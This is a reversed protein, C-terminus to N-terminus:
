ATQKLIYYTNTKGNGGDSEYMTEIELGANEVLRRMEEKNCFHCYRYAGFTNSWRLLFDNEELENIDIGIDSIEVSNLRKAFLKLEIFNWVTIVIRGDPNLSKHLKKLFDLRKSYSPIHHFVGFLVILDASKNTLTSDIDGCFFRIVDSGYKAEAKEILYTSNDVGLYSYGSYPLREIAEVFRGNGCGLDLIIKPAFKLKSFTNNLKKWGGWQYHRTLNFNEAVKEYFNKNLQLLNQVTTSNM